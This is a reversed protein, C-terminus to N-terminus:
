LICGTYGGGICLISLLFGGDCWFWYRFQLYKVIEFLQVLTTVLSLEM